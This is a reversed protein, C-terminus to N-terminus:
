RVPEDTYSRDIPAGLTPSQIVDPNPAVSAGLISATLTFPPSAVDSTRRAEVSVEWVGATPNAATRSFPGGGPCSGGDVPPSYCFLSNVTGSEFPVGYPM